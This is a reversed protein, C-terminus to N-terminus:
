GTVKTSSVFKGSLKIKASGALTGNALHKATGNYSFAGKSSLTAGSSVLIAGLSNANVYCQITFNTIEYKGHQKAVSFAVYRQGASSAYYGTKPRPAAALAVPVATIALLVGCVLMVARPRRSLLASLPLMPM